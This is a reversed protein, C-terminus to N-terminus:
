SRMSSSPSRSMSESRSAAIGGSFRNIEQLPAGADADSSVSRNWRREEIAAREYRRTTSARRM